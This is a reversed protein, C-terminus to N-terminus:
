SLPIVTGRGPNEGKNDEITKAVNTFILYFLDRFTLDGPRTM